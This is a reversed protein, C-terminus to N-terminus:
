DGWSGNRSRPHYSAKRPRLSFDSALPIHSSRRALSLVRVAYRAIATDAPSSPLQRVEVGDGVAVVGKVAFGAPVTNDVLVELVREASPGPALPGFNLQGPRITIPSPIQANIILEIQPKGPEDTTLWVEASQMGARKSWNASVQVTIHGGPPIPGAPVDAATCTCSSAKNLVRIPHDARNVLTFNHELKEAAKVDVLGFSHRLADPVLKSPSVSTAAHPDTSVTPGIDKFATAAIAIAGLLLFVSTATYLNRNTM